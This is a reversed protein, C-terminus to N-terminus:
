ADIAELLATFVVLKRTIEENRQHENIFAGSLWHAVLNTSLLLLYFLLLRTVAKTSDAGDSQPAPM